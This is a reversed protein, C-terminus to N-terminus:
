PRWHVIREDRFGLLPDYTVIRRREEDMLILLARGGDDPLRILVEITRLYYLMRTKRVGPAMYNEVLAIDGTLYRLAQAEDHERKRDRVGFLCGRLQRAREPSLWPSIEDLYDPDDLLDIINDLMMLAVQQPDLWPPPADIAPNRDEGRLGGPEVIAAPSWSGTYRSYWIELPMGTEADSYWVVIAHDNHLFALASRLDRGGTGAAFGASAWIGSQEQAYGIDLALMTYTSLAESRSNFDVDPMMDKESIQQPTSWGNDWRVHYLPGPGTGAWVAEAKGTTDSAIGLRHYAPTQADWAADATQGPIPSPVSWSAGDYLSYYIRNGEAWVVLAQDSEGIFTIEPLAAHAVPYDTLPVLPEATGWASGDHRAYFIVRKGDEYTHVWAALAEGKVSFDVVPDTDEGEIAALLM